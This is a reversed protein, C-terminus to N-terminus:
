MAAPKKPERVRLLILLGALWFVMIVTMGARQSDFASTLAGFALPGAFAVAKGTFAYLGFFETSLDPPALRAMLSRSAAQAPGVFLGLALALAIFWMAGDILLLPVGFALLGLLAYVVTNKSGARDDVWGFLIAGLGSTVNLGIAFILIQDFAMGFTGAAYLGGVAFLTGLGDRYLASAILFRLVQGHRPLQKLTRWLSGLGARVAGGLPLGAGGPDRAFLLIPSSFLGMWLAVLIASARVNAANEQPIGLLGGSEGLGVLLFLTAALCALGGLYGIGWGWGSIRGLREPAAVGPLMANYVVASLEHAITAIVALTLAPVAFRPAPEAFWLAACALVTIAITFALWPRRGRGQDAVAGLLPAAIAVGVGALGMATAWQASGATEDGVIGRAFYVSFIFTGIVTNFASNAWDYLCWSAVSLRERPTGGTM